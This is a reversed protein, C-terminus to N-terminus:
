FFLFEYSKLSYNKKSCLLSTVTIIEMQSYQGTFRNKYVNNLKNVATDSQMKMHSIYKRPINVSQSSSVYRLMRYSMSGEGEFALGIIELM